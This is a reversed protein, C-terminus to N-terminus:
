QLEFFDDPAVDYDPASAGAESEVNEEGSDSFDVVGMDYGDVGDDEDIVIM